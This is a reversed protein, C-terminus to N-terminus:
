ESTTSEEGFRANTKGEKSENDNNNLTRALSTSTNVLLSNGLFLAALLFPTYGNYKQTKVTSVSIQKFLGTNLKFTM